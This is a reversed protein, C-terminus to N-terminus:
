DCGLHVKTQGFTKITYTEKLMNFISNPNVAVVLVDDTHTGTYNYGGRCGRIWVDTEFHTLRFGMERLTHSLHTHWRNWSTPLGYLAKIVELLAGEDIIDVLEFEVGARTYINEQTNANLYYNGIDGTMVELNNKSEIIMLIRDSVFKMTRSYVKHVSYDVVHGGIVLRSKRRLDVKVNFIMWLPAFQYGKARAKQLSSLLKRFISMSMLTELEKLITKSWLYNGNEKDFQAAEKANRPVRISYKMNGNNPCRWYKGSPKKLIALFIQHYRLPRLMYLNSQSRLIYELYNTGLIRVLRATRRTKDNM